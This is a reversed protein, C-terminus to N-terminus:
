EAAETTRTRLIELFRAGFRDLRSQGVGPIRALDALSAARDTVMAAMQENTFVSYLPVGEAEAIVKRLSRLRSYLDFDPGDLVEKYDVKNKRSPEGTDGSDLYQVCFAWASDRGCSVFHKEVALIKRNACFKTLAEGEALSDIAPIYFFKYKLADTM